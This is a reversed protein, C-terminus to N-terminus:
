TATSSTSVFRLARAVNSTRHVNVDFTCMEKMYHLRLRNLEARDGKALGCVWSGVSEGLFSEMHRMVYVGCDITNRSDRWKMPMRKTELNLCVGSLFGERVKKFYEYLLLKVNDPTDGYKLATAETSASSDIIELRETEFNVCLLYFRKSEVIPFFLLNVHSWQKYPTLAFDAGLSGAFWAVRESDVENLQLGVATNLRAPASPAKSLERYNLICSWVNIVAVTVEVGPALSRLDVRRAIRGSYSFLVEDRVPVLAPRVPRVAKLPAGCDPSCDGHGGDEAPTVFAEDEDEASASLGDGRPPVVRESDLAPDVSAGYGSVVMLLDGAVGDWEGGDVSPSWM